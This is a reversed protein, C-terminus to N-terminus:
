LAPPPRVHLGRRPRRRRRAAADVMLQADAATIAMPKECLIHKGAAAAALVWELHLFNPLPIYVAEIDPDALLEAYSAYAKPIGLTRAM